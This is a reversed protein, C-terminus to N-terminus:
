LSPNLAATHSLLPADTDPGRKPTQPANASADADVNQIVLLPQQNPSSARAVINTDPNQSEHPPSPPKDIQVDARKGSDQQVLEDENKSVLKHEDEAGGGGGADGNGVAADDGSESARLLPGSPPVFQGARLHEQDGPSRSRSSMSILRSSPAVASASTLDSALAAPAPVAPDLPCAEAPEDVPTHFRTGPASVSLPGSHSQQPIYLGLGLGHGAAVPIQHRSPPPSRSREPPPMTVPTPSRSSRSSRPGFLSVRPALPPTTSLPHRPSRPGFLSERPAPSTAPVLSKPSPARSSPMYSGSGSASRREVVVVPLSGGDQDPETEATIATRLSANAQM